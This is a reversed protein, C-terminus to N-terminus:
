DDRRERHRGWKDPGMAAGPCIRGRPPYQRPRCAATFTWSLIADRLFYGNLRQIGVDEITEWLVGSFITSSSGGLVIPLRSARGVSASLDPIANPDLGPITTQVNIIRQAQLGRWYDAFLSEYDRATCTLRHVIAPTEPHSPDLFTAVREDLLRTSALEPFKHGLEVLPATGPRIAQLVRGRITTIEYNVTPSDHRDLYARAKSRALDITDATVDEIRVDIRGYNAISRANEEIVVIAEATTFEAKIMDGINPVSKSPPRTLTLNALSVIWDPDSGQFSGPVGNLTILQIQNPHHDTFDFVRQQGDGEWVQSTEGVQQAGVLIVRNAFLRPSESKVVSAVTTRDLVLDSREVESRRRCQVELWPDVWPVAGTRASIERLIDSVSTIPFVVRDLAEDILVGNLSFEPLDADQFVTTLISRISAGTPTAIIREVFRTDLRLAYGSCRCYIDRADIDGQWPTEKPRWMFGGFMRDYRQRAALATVDIPESWIAWEDLGIEVADGGRAVALALAQGNLPTDTGTVPDAHAVVAGGVILELLAPTRRVAVHLWTDLPLGAHTLTRGDFRLELTGTANPQHDFRLSQSATGVRWVERSGGGASTLRVFGALTFSSGIAPLAPSLLGNGADHEFRPAGGYPVATESAGDYDRADVGALAYTLHRNHGSIDAAIPSAAEDLPWYGVISPEAVAVPRYPTDPYDITTEDLSRPYRRGAVGSLQFRGGSALRFVGGHALQFFRDSGIGHGPPWHTDFEATPREAAEAKIKVTGQQVRETIDNDLVRVRFAM